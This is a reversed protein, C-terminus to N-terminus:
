RRVFRVVDFQEYHEITEAEKFEKSIDPFFIDGEPSLKIKSMIIESVKPMASEYLKAGGMIWVTRSDEAFAKEFDEISKFALAEGSINEPTSTIVVNTRNPLPRAGISEWTRRGMLLIGGLTTRKFHKFDESIRWPIQLGNGIVSNEAVAVIAKYIM